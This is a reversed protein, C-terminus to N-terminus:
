KAKHKLKSVWLSLVASCQSVERTYIAPTLVLAKNNVTENTAESMEIQFDVANIFTSWLKVPCPPGTNHDDPSMHCMCLFLVRLLCACSSSIDPHQLHVQQSTLEVHLVRSSAAGPNSSVTGASVSLDRGAISNM